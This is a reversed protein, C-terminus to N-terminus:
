SVQIKISKSLYKKLINQVKEKKFTLEEDEKLHGVQCGGCKNYYPCFYEKEDNKVEGVLYRKKDKVIDVDYSCGKVTKPVFIVKGDVRSIGRGLHDYDNILVKM